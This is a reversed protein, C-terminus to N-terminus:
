FLLPMFVKLNPFSLWLFHITGYYNCNHLEILHFLTEVISFM